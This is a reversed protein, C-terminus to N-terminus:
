KNIVKVNNSHYALGLSSVAAQINEFSKLENVKMTLSENRREQVKLEKKLREVKINAESLTAKTFVDFVPVFVLLIICLILMKHGKNKKKKM